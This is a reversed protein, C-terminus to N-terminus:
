RQTPLPATLDNGSLRDGQPDWAERLREEWQHLFVQRCWAKSVRWHRYTDGGVGDQFRRKPHVPMHIGTVARVGAEVVEQKLTYLREVSGNLVKEFPLAV